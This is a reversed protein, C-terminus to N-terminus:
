PPKEWQSLRAALTPGDGDVEVRKLRSSAGAVLTVKSKAVGLARALLEILAENAQGDHPPASVRAKLHSQGDASPAWGDIADRGGKPTLRVAFSVKGPSARFHAGTM